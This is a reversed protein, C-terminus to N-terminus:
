RRRARQPALPAADVAAGRRKEVRIARIEIASSASTVREPSMRESRGVSICARSLDM